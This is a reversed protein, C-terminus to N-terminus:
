WSGLPFYWLIRKINARYQQWYTGSSYSVATYKHVFKSDESELKNM